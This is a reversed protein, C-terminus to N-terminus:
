VGPNAAQWAAIQAICDANSLDTQSLIQQLDSPVNPDEAFIAKIQTISTEALPIAGLVSIILSIIAAIPM